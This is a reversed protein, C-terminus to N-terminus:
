VQGSKKQQHLDHRHRILSMEEKGARNNMQIM